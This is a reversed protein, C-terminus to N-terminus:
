RKMAKTGTFAYAITVLLGTIVCMSLAVVAVSPYAGQSWYRLLLTGMVETSTSRVMVSAGFEHTLISLCLAASAAIAPRLLPVTIRAHTRLASGGHVRASDQLSSGASLMASSQLRAVHPIMITVYALVLAAATGYLVIPGSTYTFLIGAGFLVGPMVLPINTLLDVVVKLRNSIRSSGSLAIAIMFGLPVVIAVAIVSFWISNSIAKVMDPDNFVTRFNSLTATDPTIVKGSYFNALAVNLLGFLPLALAVIIYIVIPVSPWVRTKTSSRHGRSGLTEYRSSQKLAQRQVLILIAGILVLPSGYAAALGYDVPYAQAAQYMETTLVTVNQDRGLLLPATFQGLGLLLVISASYILSPRLLPLIVKRWIRAHRAGNAEAAEILAVDIGRLATLIFLYVFPILLTGTVAIIWFRSYVDVPGSSLHDWWPAKRLLQNVYGTQPSLLFSWSTVLALAPVSLPVIPLISLWSWRKPLQWACGALFTGFVLAVAVSGVGLLLTNFLTRGFWPSDLMDAYSQGGNLLAKAQVSVLPVLVLVTLVAVLIFWIGGRPGRRGRRV